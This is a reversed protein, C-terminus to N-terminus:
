GRKWHETDSSSYGMEKHYLDVWSDTHEEGLLPSDIFWDEEGMVQQGKLCSAQLDYQYEGAMILSGVVWLDTGGLATGGTDTGADVAAGPDLWRWVSFSEQPALLRGREFSSSEPDLSTLM